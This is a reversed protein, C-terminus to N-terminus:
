TAIEEDKKRTEDEMQAFGYDPNTQTVEVDVSDGPETGPVILVYGRDVRAIGDGQDGIDEIEVTLHDGEKVPPSSAPTEQQTAGKLTQEATEVSIRVIDGSPLSGYETETEPITVIHDHGQKEIKGTFKCILESSENTM